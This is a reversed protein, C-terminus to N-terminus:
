EEEQARALFISIREREFDDIEIFKLGVKYDRNQPNVYVVKCKARVPVADYIFEIEVDVIQGKYVQRPLITGIGNISIDTTIAFDKEIHQAQCSYIVVLSKVIRLYKRREEM